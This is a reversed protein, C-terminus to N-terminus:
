DYRRYYEGIDDFKECDLGLDGTPSFQDNSSHFDAFIGVSCRRDNHCSDNEEFKDNNFVMGIESNNMDFLDFTNHKYSDFGNYEFVYPNEGGNEEVFDEEQFVNRKTPSVKKDAVSKQEEKFYGDLEKEEDLAIQEYTVDEEVTTSKNHIDECASTLVRQLLEPDQARERKEMNFLIKDYFKKVKLTPVENLIKIIDSLETGKKIL